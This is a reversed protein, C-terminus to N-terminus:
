TSLRLTRTASKYCAINKRNNHLLCCSSTMLWGGREWPLGVLYQYGRSCEPIGSWWCGSGSFLHRWHCVATLFLLVLWHCYWLWPCISCHPFIHLWACFHLTTLCMFLAPVFLLEVTLTLLVVTISCLPCGILLFRQYLLFFSWLSCPLLWTNCAWRAPGSWNTTGSSLWSPEWPSTPTWWSRRAVVSTSIKSRYAQFFIYLLMDHVATNSLSVTKVNM